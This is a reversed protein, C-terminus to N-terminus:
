TTLPPKPHGCRYRFGSSVDNCFFNWVEFFPFVFQNHNYSLFIPRKCENSASSMKPLFDMKTDGPDKMNLVFIVMSTVFQYKKPTSIELWKDWLVWKGMTGMGYVILKMFIM